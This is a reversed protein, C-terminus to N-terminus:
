EFSYGVRGDIDISFEIGLGITPLAVERMYWIDSNGKHIGLRMYPKLCYEEM